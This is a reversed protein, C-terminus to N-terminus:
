LTNTPSPMWGKWTEILMSGAAWGDDGDIDGIAMAEGKLFV